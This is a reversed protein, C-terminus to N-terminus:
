VNKMATTSGFRVTKAFSVALPAIEVVIEVLFLCQQYFILLLFTSFSILTDLILHLFFIFGIKGFILYLYDFYLEM